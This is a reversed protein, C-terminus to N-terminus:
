CFRLKFERSKALVLKFVSKFKCKLVLVDPEDHLSPMPRVSNNSVTHNTHVTAESSFITNWELKLKNLWNRGLLIPQNKKNISVVALMYQGNYAVKVEAQGDVMVENGAYTFLKINAHTLPVGSFKKSFMDTNCITLASGTDLEVEKPNSNIFLGVKYGTKTESLGM